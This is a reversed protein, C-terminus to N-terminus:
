TLIKKILACACEGLKATMTSDLDDKAMKGMILRLDDRLNVATAADAFIDNVLTTLQARIADRPMSADAEDMETKM